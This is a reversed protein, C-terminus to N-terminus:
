LKITCLSEFECVMYHTVHTEGFCKIYQRGFTSIKKNFDAASQDEELRLGSFYPRLNDLLSWLELHDRKAQGKRLFNREANVVDMYLKCPVLSTDSSNSKFLKLAHAGSFSPKNPVSNSKGSLDVDKFIVINGGHAGTLSVVKQMGDVVLKQVAPDRITWVHMFHMHVIKEIIRNM